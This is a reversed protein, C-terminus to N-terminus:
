SPSLHHPLRVGVQADWAPSTNPQSAQMRQLIANIKTLEALTFDLLSIWSEFGHGGSLDTSIRLDSSSDPDLIPSRGGILM